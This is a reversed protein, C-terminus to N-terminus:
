RPVRNPSNYGNTGGFAINEIVMNSFFQQYTANWYGKYQLLMDKIEAPIANTFTIDILPHQYGRDIGYRVMSNKAFELTLVYDQRSNAMKPSVGISIITLNNNLIATYFASFNQGYFQTKTTAMTNLKSSVDNYYNIYATDNIRQAKCNYSTSLILILIIKQITKM